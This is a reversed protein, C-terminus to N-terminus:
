VDERKTKLINQKYLHTAIIFCGADTLLTGVMILSLDLLHYFENTIWLLYIGEPSLPHITLAAFVSWVSNVIQGAALLLLGPTIGNEGRLADQIMLYLLVGFLVVRVFQGLLGLGNILDLM